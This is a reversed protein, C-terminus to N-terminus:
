SDDPSRLAVTLPESDSELYPHGDYYEVHIHLPEAIDGDDAKDVLFMISKAFSELAAKSGEVNISDGRRAIRVRQSRRSVRISMLFGDYPAADGTQPITLCFVIELDASVLLRSFRRLEDPTGEIEIGGQRDYRAVVPLPDRQVWSIM